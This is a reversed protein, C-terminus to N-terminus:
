PIMRFLKTQPRHFPDPEAAPSVPGDSPAGETKTEQGDTTEPLDFSEDPSKETPLLPRDVTEVATKETESSVANPSAGCAGLLITCFVFLMAFRNKM